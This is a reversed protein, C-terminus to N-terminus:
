KVATRSLPVLVAYTTIPPSAYKYTSRPATCHNAPSHIALFPSFYNILFLGPQKNEILQTM